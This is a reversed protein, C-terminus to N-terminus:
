SITNKNGAVREILGNKADENSCMLMKSNLSKKPEGNYPDKLEIIGNTHCPTTVFNDLLSLRQNLQNNCM